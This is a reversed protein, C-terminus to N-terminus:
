GNEGLLGDVVEPLGRGPGVLVTRCGAARGAGADSPSDGIFVTGGLDFDHEEAARLLLGPKPKRCDCGDDLGHPCVYIGGLEVGHRRLAARMRAHIDDLDQRTMLGRAIGRQNTVVYVEYGHRTLRALAEVAGPLFEFERWSKVYDGEPAKRNIVGDRDLLVVKRRNLADNM